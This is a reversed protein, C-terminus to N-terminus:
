FDDIFQFITLLSTIVIAVDLNAPSRFISINTQSIITKRKTEELEKRTEKHKVRENELQEPFFM